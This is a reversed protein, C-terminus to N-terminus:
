VVIKKPLMLFFWIGFLSCATNLGGILATNCSSLGGEGVLDPWFRGHRRNAGGIHPYSCFRNPRTPRCGRTCPAYHLACSFIVTASNSCHDPYATSNLSCALLPSTANSIYRSFFWFISTYKIDYNHIKIFFHRSLTATEHYARAM